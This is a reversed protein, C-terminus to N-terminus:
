RPDVDGILRNGSANEVSYLRPLFKSLHNMEEACHILLDSVFAETLVLRRAARTNLLLNLLPGLTRAQSAADGLWFASRMQAGNATPVVHHVLFGGRTKLTRDFTEACIVTTDALCASDFGFEAPDKFSISLKKLSKGIYEDVHSINGIYRSRLDPWATRDQQVRAAVHALPHWLRYRDSEPLHWGFWWDLMAPTVGPM